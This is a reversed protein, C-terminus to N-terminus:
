FKKLKKQLFQGKKETLVPGLVKEDINLVFYKYILKTKNSIFQSIQVFSSPLM